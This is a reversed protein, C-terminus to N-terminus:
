DKRKRKRVQIVLKQAFFKTQNYRSEEICSDEEDQRNQKTGRLGAPKKIKNLHKTRLIAKVKKARGAKNSRKKGKQNRPNRQVKKLKKLKKDAKSLNETNKNSKKKGKQNKPTRQVKKIKKLKKDAKSLNDTNKGLKDREVRLLDQEPQQPLM